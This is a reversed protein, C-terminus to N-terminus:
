KVQFSKRIKDLKGRCEEITENETHYNNDELISYVIDLQEVVGELRRDVYDFSEDFPIELVIRM